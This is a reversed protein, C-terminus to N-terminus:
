PLKEPPSSGLVLRRLTQLGRHRLVKVNGPSCRLEAATVADPAGDLLYREVAARQREPLRSLLRDLCAWMVHHGSPSLLELTPHIAGEGQDDGAM